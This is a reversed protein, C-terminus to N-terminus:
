DPKMTGGRRLARAADFINAIYVLLSVLFLILIRGIHYAVFPEDSGGAADIAIRLNMVMPILVHIMFLLFSISFLFAYMGGAMWRKQCCQGVGPYVFASLIVPWRGSTRPNHKETM